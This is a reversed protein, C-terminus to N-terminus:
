RNAAGDVQEAMKHLMADTTFNRELVTARAAAGMKQRLAPKGALDVIKDGLVRADDPPFYAVGDGAMEQTGPIDSALCAVEASMAELLSLPMGEALSPLVFLDFHPIYAEIDAHNGVFHVLDAIGM